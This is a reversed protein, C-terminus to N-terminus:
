PTGMRPPSPTGWGAAPASKQSNIEKKARNKSTEHSNPSSAAMSDRRAVDKRRQQGHWAACSVAQMARPRLRRCETVVQDYPWYSPTRGDHARKQRLARRRPNAAPVRSAIGVCGRACPCDLPVVCRRLVAGTGRQQVPLSPPRTDLSLPELSHVYTSPQTELCTPNASGDVRMVEQPRQSPCWHTHSWLWSVSSSAPYATSTSVRRTGCPRHRQRCTPM